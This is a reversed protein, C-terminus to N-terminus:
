LDGPDIASLATPLLENLLDAVPEFFDVLLSNHWWTEANVDLGRAVLVFAGILLAARALGFVAGLVRDTGKIAKIIERKRKTDTITDRITLIKNEIIRVM